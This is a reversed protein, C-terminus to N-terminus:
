IGEHSVEELVKLLKRKYCKTKQLLTECHFSSINKIIIKLLPRNRCILRRTLLSIFLDGLLINKEINSDKSLQFFLILYAVKFDTQLQEDQTIINIKELYDEDILHSYKELIPNGIMSGDGEM